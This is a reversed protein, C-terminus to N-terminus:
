GITVQRTETNPVEANISRNIFNLEGSDAGHIEAQRREGM